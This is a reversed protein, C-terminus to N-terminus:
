QQSFPLHFISCFETFCGVGHCERKLCRLQLGSNSVDPYISPQYIAYVLVPAPIFGPARWNKGIEQTRTQPRTYFGDQSPKV